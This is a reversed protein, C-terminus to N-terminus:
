KVFVVACNDLFKDSRNAALIKDADDIMVVPTADLDTLSTAKVILPKNGARSRGTEDDGSDTYSAM